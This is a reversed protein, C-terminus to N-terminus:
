QLSSMTVFIDSNIMVNAGGVISMDSEGTRLSQCAQHLATLTTSCGTDIAMSPGRLDFFHSLRNAAMAAGVGLMQQRPLTLPDRLQADQYDRFFAGAYMSTNSGAVDDLTLGAPLNTLDSAILDTAKPSVAKWLRM